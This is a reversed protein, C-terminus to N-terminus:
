IIQQTRVGAGRAPHRSASYATQADAPTARRLNRTQPVQEATAILHAVFPSDPRSLSQSFAASWPAPQTVPVLATCAPTADFVVGDDALPAPRDSDSM